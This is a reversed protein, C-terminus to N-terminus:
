HNTVSLPLLEKAAAYPFDPINSYAELCQKQVTQSQFRAALPQFHHRLLSRSLHKQGHASIFNHVCGNALTMAPCLNLALPFSIYLQNVKFPWDWNGFIVQLGRYKSESYKYIGKWQLPATELLITATM